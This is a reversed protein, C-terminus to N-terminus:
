STRCRIRAGVRRGLAVVALSVALALCASVAYGKLTTFLSAGAVQGASIDPYRTLMLVIQINEGLDIVGVAPPLWALRWMRETPRFRYILGALLSAYVVPFLTDLTLSALAYVRRGAEGYGELAALAESHTYGGMVDLMEGGVPMAPFVVVLLILASVLTACLAWAASSAEFFKRM